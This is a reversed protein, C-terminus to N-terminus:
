GRTSAYGLLAALGLASRASWPMRWLGGHVAEHAEAQWPHEFDRGARQLDAVLLGAMVTNATAPDFVEVGFRHAGAFAAALLRNSTVSTTASSPAVHLSVDVGDAAAVTARWRQIRKALAYNPGQAPVLADAIGPDADPHHNRALLRGRTITRLPRGLVKATTSRSEYATTAHEVADRPVVFVDTPTALYALTVDNRAALVQQSIADIAASLRVHTGGDAYAYNGIVLRGPLGTIWDAIAAPETLLDVGAITALRGPSSDDDAPFEDPVDQGAADGAAPGRAEDARVPVLLTGAADGARALIRQWVAPQPLDIAAVTAGWRLLSTLPGMEAGAGCVVVTHGALPLWEPHAIVADVAPAVSPEAVGDAVWAAVRSRLDAGALARDGIPVAFGSAPATGHVTVTRLHPGGTRLGDALPHSRGDPAVVEMHRHVAALGRRAIDVWYEPSEMGAEVLRRFHALYGSRWNTDHEAARAGTPDVDALAAAVVRRGVASTSRRGDHLPFVVGSDSGDEDVM